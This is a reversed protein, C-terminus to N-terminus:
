KFFKDLFKTKEKKEADGIEAVNIGLIGLAMAYASIMELHAQVGKQLFAIFIAANSPNEKLAHEIENAERSDAEWLPLSLEKLREMLSDTTAQSIKDM